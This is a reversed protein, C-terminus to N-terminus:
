PLPALDAHSRVISGASLAGTTTGACTMVLRIFRQSGIYGVRQVTNNGGASSVATFAGQLDSAAVDSYGSGGGVASEQLKPTHTGDTWVGFEVIAMASHYGQLDTDAGNASATLAKPPLGLVVDANDKLDRMSM